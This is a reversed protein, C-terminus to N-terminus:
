GVMLAAAMSNGHCCRTWATVAVASLAPLCLCVSMYLCVCVVTARCWVPLGQENTKVALPLTLTM